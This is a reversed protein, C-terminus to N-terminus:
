ETIEDIINFAGEILRTVVSGAVLELDYRYAGPPLATTEEATLVLDVTGEAGGLTIRGNETTMEVIIPTGPRTRAQLRATYETLDVLANNSDRYEIPCVFTAGQEVTM